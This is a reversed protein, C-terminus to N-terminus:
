TIDYDAKLSRCGVKPSWQWARLPRYPTLVQGGPRNRKVLHVREDTILDAKRTQIGAHEISFPGHNAGFLENCISNPHMTWSSARNSHRAPVRALGVGQHSTVNECGRTFMQLPRQFGRNLISCM